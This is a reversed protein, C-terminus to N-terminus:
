WEHIFEQLTVTGDQDVDLRQFIRDAEVASVQLEACITLFENREIRGSNDVDYARFLARLRDREEASMGKVSSTGDGDADLRSFISEAEETPVQLEQCIASFENKEIRGSNDVDYIHFLSRLRGREESNLKGRM